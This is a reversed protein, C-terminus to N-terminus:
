QPEVGRCAVPAGRTLPSSGWFLRRRCLCWRHEGRSRPHAGAWFVIARSAPTSGAHAPILRRGGSRGRRIMPAGRTLPSSGPTSDNLSIPVLHEGRSRPHARRIQPRNAVAITSGAHAPILGSTSASFNRM